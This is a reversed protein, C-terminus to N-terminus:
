REALDQHRGLGEAYHQQIQASTLAKPYIRVEDILGHFRHTNDWTTRYNGIALGNGTSSITGAANEGYIYQGDLYISTKVGDWTVVVHYWRGTSLSYNATTFGDGITSHRFIIQTGGNPTSLYYESGKGLITPYLDTFSIANFWAELTISTFTQLNVNNGVILYDNVGDFSLANGLNGGSFSPGSATTPCNTCNADNGSSSIDKFITAGSAENFDWAGVADSGLAHYIIQSFKVARATKAKGRASNVNVVVISALLGIISIVVLLEILTFASKLNKNKM